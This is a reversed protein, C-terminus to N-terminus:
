PLTSMKFIPLFAKLKQFLCSLFLMKFVPIQFDNGGSRSSPEVNLALVDDRADQIQACVESLMWVKFFFTEIFHIFHLTESTMLGNISHISGM